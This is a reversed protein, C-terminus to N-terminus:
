CLFYFYVFRQLSSILATKTVKLLSLNVIKSALYVTVYSSTAIIATAYAVGSYGFKVSLIPM